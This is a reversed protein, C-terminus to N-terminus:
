PCAGAKNAADSVEAPEKTIRVRGTSTILLARGKSVGAAAVIGREDCIVVNRTPAKPALPNPPNAFGSPAFSEIGDNDARVLIATDLLGHREIVVDKDDFQWNNNEDEFVVWGKFDGYSCVPDDATPDDSACVVVDEQRKIAESRALQFSRLLDNSAGSLRNNQIFVRMNPVAVATLVGAIALTVMLEALTFGASTRKRSRYLDLKRM